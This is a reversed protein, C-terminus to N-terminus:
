GGAARQSEPSLEAAWGAAALRAFFDRAAIPKPEATSDVYTLQLGRARVFDFWDAMLWSVWRPDSILALREERTRRKRDNPAEGIRKSLRELLVAPDTWLMVAKTRQSAALIDLNLDRFFSGFKEPSGRMLDYHYLAAPMHPEDQDRLLWPSTVKWTAARELGLAARVEPLEGKVLRGIMTSKGASPLGAVFALDDIRRKWAIAIFRDKFPSPLVDVKSVAAAQGLVLRRIASATFFTPASNPRQEGSAIVAIPSDKLVRRAAWGRVGHAHIAKQAKVHEVGAVELVLREKACAVLKEIAHFPNRLHHTVNLCLVVDFRGPLEDYDVDLRRFDIPMGLCDAIKKAQRLRAGNMEAGVVRTAGRRCAEHGFFGLYSGIDLVSKGDLREPLVLKATSTRDEGPTSLGYPLAIRQYKPQEEELFATVQERTWTTQFATDAM